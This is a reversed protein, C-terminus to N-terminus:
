SLNQWTRNGKDILPNTALITESWSDSKELKRIGLKLKEDFKVRLAQKGSEGM